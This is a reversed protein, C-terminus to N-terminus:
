YETLAFLNVLGNVAGQIVEDTAGSIQASTATKNAALIAPWMTKAVSVPDRLAAAAWKLRKDHNQTADSEVVIGQAAIAVAVAIKEELPRLNALQVLEAYTAM